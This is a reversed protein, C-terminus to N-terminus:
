FQRWGPRFKDAHKTILLEINAMGINILGTGLANGTLLSDTGTCPCQPENCLILLNNQRDVRLQLFWNLDFLSVADRHAQQRREGM